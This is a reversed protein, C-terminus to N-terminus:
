RLRLRVDIDEPWWIWFLEPTVAPARLMHDEKSSSIMKPSQHISVSFNSVKTPLMACEMTLLRLERSVMSKRPRASKTPKRKQSEQNQITVLTVISPSQVGVTMRVPGDLQTLPTFTWTELYLEGPNLQLPFERLIYFDPHLIGCRNERLVEDQFCRCAGSYPDAPVNGFGPVFCGGDSVSPVNIFTQFPLDASETPLAGKLDLTAWGAFNPASEFWGHGDAYSDGPPARRIGCEGTENRLVIALEEGTAVSIPTDLTITVFGAPASGFESAPKVTQGRSSGSPEGASLEVIDIILDGSECWVPLGVASLPGGRGVKFSQALRQQVNGGIALGGRSTDVRTQSQDVTLAAQAPTAMVVVNTAVIAAITSLNFKRLIM